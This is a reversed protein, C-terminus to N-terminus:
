GSCSPPDIREIKEAVLLTSFDGFDMVLWPAVGNALQLTRMEFSPVGERDGVDYFALTMPWGDGETLPDDLITVGTPTMGTEGNDGIFANILEPGIEESGTFVTRSAQREGARAQDILWATHSIPFLTGADLSITAKQPAEYDALGGAPDLSAKGKAEEAVGDTEIRSAFQFEDGALSEWSTFLAKQRIDFNGEMAFVANLDQTFVWGDCTQEISMTMVGNASMIGGGELLRMSYFARHPIMSTDILSVIGDSTPETPTEVEASAEPEAEDIVVSAVEPMREPALKVLVLFGVALVVLLTPLFFRKM